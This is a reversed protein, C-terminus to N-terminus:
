CALPLLCNEEQVCSVIKKRRNKNRKVPQQTKLNNQLLLSYRKTATQWCSKAFGVWNIAHLMSPTACTGYARSAFASHLTQIDTEFALCIIKIATPQYPLNHLFFFICSKCFCFCKTSPHCMWWSLIKKQVEGNSDKFWEPIGSWKSIWKQNQRKRHNVLGDISAIWTNWFWTADCMWEMHRKGNGLFM